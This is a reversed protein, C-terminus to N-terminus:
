FPFDNAAYDALDPKPINAGFKSDIEELILRAIYASGRANPHVGDLSFIGYPPVINPEILVHDVFVSGSDKLAKFKANMDVLVIDSTYQTMATAILTNLLDVRTSIETIEKETLIYTDPVGKGENIWIEVSDLPLTLTVLENATMQRVSPIGMGTLDPLEDDHILFPNAGAQFSVTPRINDSQLVTANYAEIGENFTAFSENLAQATEGNIVFFNYGITTFYPIDTVNPINLIVGKRPSQMLQFLIGLYYTSFAAPSSMPVSGDAGSTAYGLVDNNGIWLTFFSCDAALADRLITSTGPNSAFRAYYPNYLTDAPDAGGVAEEILSVTLAGPVGFNNIASRDGEYPAIPDGPTTPAPISNANLKLRGLIVGESEALYGNPANIDPQNFEGGGVQEFQKALIAPFSNSQGRDYLAGDMFGATLSNGISIFKTFDASGASAPEPTPQKPDHDATPEETQKCSFLLVLTVM